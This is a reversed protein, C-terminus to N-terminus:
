NTKDGLLSRHAACRAFILHLLKACSLATFPPAVKQRCCCRRHHDRSGHAGHDEDGDSVTVPATVKDAVEM